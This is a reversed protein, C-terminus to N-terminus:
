GAPTSRCAFKAIDRSIAGAEWSSMAANGVSARMEALTSGDGTYRSRLTRCEVLRRSYSEGSPGTRHTVIIARSKPLPKLSVLEYTGTADSPVPVERRRGESVKSLGIPVGECIGRWATPFDAVEDELWTFKGIGASIFRKYGAYGGMRNKANVEGCVAKTGSAQTRVSVNRFKASDRDILTDLVAIQAASKVAVDSYSAQESTAAPAGGASKPQAASPAALNYGAGLVIGGIACLLGPIIARDTFSRVKSKQGLDIQWAVLTVKRRLDHLAFGMIVLSLATFSSAWLWTATAVSVLPEKRILLHIVVGVLVACLTILVGLGSRAQDTSKNRERGAFQLWYASVAGAWFAGNMVASVVSVSPDM